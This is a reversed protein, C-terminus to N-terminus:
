KLSISEIMSNISNLSPTFDAQKAKNLFEISKQPSPSDPLTKVTIPCFFSVYYNGDATLGQFTYFLDGNKIPATDQEYCSLFAVGSGQKFNLFKVQNHFAEAADAAPLIPMQKVGRTSKTAIINKLQAIDKDFAIKEKGHFMAAYPKLPYILLQKQLYDTYNSLKEGDFTLRIHEPEGNMFPPEDAHNPATPVVTKTASKALSGTDLSVNLQKLHSGAQNNSTTEAIAQVNVIATCMIAIAFVRM